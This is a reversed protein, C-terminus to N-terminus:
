PRRLAFLLNSSPETNRLYYIYRMGGQLEERKKLIEPGGQCFLTHRSWSDDMELIITQEGITGKWSAGSTLYYDFFYFHQGNPLTRLFHEPMNNAEQPWVGKYGGQEKRKTVSNKQLPVAIGYEVEITRVEDPEFVEHWIMLNQFTEGGIHEKGFLKQHDNESVDNPPYRHDDPDHGSVYTDKRFNPYGTTRNYVARTEGNSHVTFHDLRFSSFMSDSVPFGVTLALSDSSENNMVFVGRVIMLLMDNVTAPLPGLRIAVDAKAMSINTFVNVAGINAGARGGKPAIVVERVVELDAM